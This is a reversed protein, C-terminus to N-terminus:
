LSKPTNNLNQDVVQSICRVMNEQTKHLDFDTLVTERAKRGLIGRLGDDSHLTELHIVLRKIDKLPFTLGNKGYRIYEKMLGVQTTIVALECAMAELVALCTTELLSPQVYVDMAQLYAVVHKQMGVLKVKPHALSQKIQDIGDGVILLRAQPITKEIEIFAAFLTELDKERSLRGVYGIVYEDGAFGITRKAELKSLCAKFEQTNVGLPVIATNIRTNLRLLLEQTELSPVMVVQAHKFVWLAYRKALSHWLYRTINKQSFSRYVLQWDVSHMYHVLPKKQKIAYYACVGGISALTHTWVVDAEKVLRALRKTSLKAPRYDGFQHKSLPLTIHTFSGTLTSAGFDPSVITVSFHTAVADIVDHLVRAIGDARPFVCDTAILLKKM